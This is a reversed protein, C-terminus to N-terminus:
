CWGLDFGTDNRATQYQHHSTRWENYVARLETIIEQELHTEAKTQLLWDIEEQDLDELAIQAEPTPEPETMSTEPMDVPEPESLASLDLDSVSVEPLPLADKFIALRSVELLRMQDILAQRNNTCLEFLEVTTARDIATDPELDSSKITSGTRGCGALLCLLAVLVATPTVIICPKHMRCDVKKHM